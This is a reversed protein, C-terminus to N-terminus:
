KVIDKNTLLVVIAMCSVLTLIGFLVLEFHAEGYDNITVLTSMHGSFYAVLFTWYLTICAALGATCGIVVIWLKRTM